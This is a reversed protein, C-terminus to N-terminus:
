IEFSEVGVDGNGEVVVWGSGESEGDAVRVLALWAGWWIEGGVCTIDVNTAHLGFGDHLEVVFAFVAKCVFADIAM